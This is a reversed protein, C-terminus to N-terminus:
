RAAEHQALMQLFLYIFDILFNIYESSTINADAILAQLEGILSGIAAGILELTGVRVALGSGVSFLDIGEIVGVTM